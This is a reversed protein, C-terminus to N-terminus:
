VGMLWLNCIGNYICYLGVHFVMHCSVCFKENVWGNRRSRPLARLVGILVFVFSWAVICSMIFRAAAVQSLLFGVVAFAIVFALMCIVLDVIRIRYNFIKM